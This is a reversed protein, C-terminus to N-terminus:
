SFPISVVIAARLLDAIVMIKRRDYRDVFVGAILGVVLTPVATAVFM